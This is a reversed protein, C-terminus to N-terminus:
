VTVTINLVSAALWYTGRRWDGALYYSISAALSFTIIFLAFGKGSFINM